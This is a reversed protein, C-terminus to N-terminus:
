EDLLPFIATREYKPIQDLHTQYLVVESAKFTLPSPHFPNNEGLLSTHFSSSGAWKRALTIHPKFPRTELKFGANVCAQYVINHIETLREEKLTDAWFIRPADGRGFVGLQNIHLSFPKQEKLREQVLIQAKRLMDEEAAGLFALTIHFDEFHVWRQFPLNEKIISCVEKLKLKTEIPLSIAFFFHTKKDM